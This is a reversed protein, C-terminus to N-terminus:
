SLIVICCVMFSFQCRVTQPTRPEKGVGSVSYRSYPPLVEQKERNKELAEELVTLVRALAESVADALEEPTDM